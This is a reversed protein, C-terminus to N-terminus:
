GSKAKIFEDYSPVYGLGVGSAIMTHWIALRSGRQHVFFVDAVVPTVLAEVPSASLGSLIRAATLSKFNGALWGWVSTLVLAVMGLVFFARKGYISAAASVIFMGAGAAFQHGGLLSTSITNISTHYQHALIPLGPTIMSGQSIAVAVLLGLIGM